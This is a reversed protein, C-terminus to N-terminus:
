LLSLTLCLSDYWQDTPPVAMRNGYKAFLIVAILAATQFSPLLKLPPQVPPITGSVKHPGRLYKVLEDDAYLIMGCILRRNLWEIETNRCVISVAMLAATEFSYKLTEMVGPWADKPQLLKQCRLKCSYKM